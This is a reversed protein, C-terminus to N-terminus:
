QTDAGRGPTSTRLVAKRSFKVRGDVVAIVKVKLVDGVKCVDAVDKVYKDDLESVLCLGTVGSDLEVFAGFARVAIVKGVYVHGVTVSKALVESRAIKEALNERENPAQETRDLTGRDPLNGNEEPESELRTLERSLDGEIKGLRSRVEEDKRKSMFWNTGKVVLGLASMAVAIVLGATIAVGIVDGPNSKSVQNMVTAFVLAVIVLGGCGVALAKNTMALGAQSQMMWAVDERAADGYGRVGIEVAQKTTTQKEVEETMTRASVSMKNAQEIDQLRSRIEMARVSNRSRAMATRDLESPQDEHYKAGRLLEATVEGDSYGIKHENKCHKCMVIAAGHPVDLVAGCYRCPFIM